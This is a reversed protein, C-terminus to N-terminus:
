PRPRIDSDLKLQGSMWWWRHRRSHDGKLSRLRINLSRARKVANPWRGNILGLRSLGAPNAWLDMVEDTALEINKNASPDSLPAAGMALDLQSQKESLKQLRWGGAIANSNAHNEKWLSAADNGAAPDNLAALSPSLQQFGQQKLHRSISQLVSQWRSNEGPLIFQMQINAKYRGKPKAFLSISVPAEALRKRSLLSIGFKTELPEKVMSKSLLSGFLYDSESVKLRLLRDKDDASKLSSISRSHQNNPIPFLYSPSSSLPRSGIVGQWTLENRHLQVSLCGWRSFQVFPALSRSIAALGDPNWIVAPRSLLQSICHLELKSRQSSVPLARKNLRHLLQQQHLPDSGILVYNEFRDFHIGSRVKRPWIKSPLVLYAKGDDAWAQWWIDRGQYRWLDNALSVGLRQQWLTPPTRRPDGQFSQLLNLQDILRQLSLSEQSRFSRSNLQLAISPILLLTLLGATTVPANFHRRLSESVETFRRSLVIM